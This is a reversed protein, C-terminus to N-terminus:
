LQAESFVNLMMKAAQLGDAMACITVTGAEGTLRLQVSARGQFLTISTGGYPDDTTMCGNDVGVIEAPGEAEFQVRGEHHFCHISNEDQAEATLLM